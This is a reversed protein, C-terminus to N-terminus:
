QGQLMKLGIQSIKLRDSFTTLVCEVIRAVVYDLNPKLPSSAHSTVSIANYQTDWLISTWCGEYLSACLGKQWLNEVSAMQLTALM